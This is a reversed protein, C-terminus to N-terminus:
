TYFLGDPISTFSAPDTEIGTWVEEGTQPCRVMLLCM